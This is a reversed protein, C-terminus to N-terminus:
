GRPHTYGAMGTHVAHRVTETIRDKLLTHVFRMATLRERAVDAAPGTWHADDIHLALDPLEVTVDAPTGDPALRTTVRVDALRATCDGTHLTDTAPPAERAQDHYAAAGFEHILARHEPPLAIWHPPEETRHAADATATHAALGDYRALEAETVDPLEGSHDDVATYVDDQTMHTTQTDNNGTDNQIVKSFGETAKSAAVFADAKAVHEPDGKKRLRSAETTLATQVTTRQLWAHANYATGEQPDTWDNVAQRGGGADGPDTTDYTQQSMRRTVGKEAWKKRLNASVSSTGDFIDYYSENHEGYQILLQRGNETKMLRTRHADARDTWRGVTDDDPHDPEIGRAGAPITPRMAEASLPRLSGATDLARIDDPRADLAYRATLLLAPIRHVLHDGSHRLIQPAGEADLRLAGLRFSLAGTPYGLAAPMEVGRALPYGPTDPLHLPQPTSM